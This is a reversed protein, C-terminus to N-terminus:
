PCTPNYEHAGMDVIVTTNCDGDIKRTQGCIDNDKYTCDDICDNSGADICPSSSSLSLGDDCTGWCNDAGGRWDDADSFLPDDSINGTGSWGGEICCYTVSASEDDNMEDQNDWMICNCITAEADYENYIAGGNNDGNNEYFTCNIIKAQTDDTNYIGGGAWDAYNEFFVCNTIEAAGEYNYIGGGYDAECSKFVCRDVKPSCDDIYVGGGCDTTDSNGGIVCDQILANASCYIMKGNGDVDGDVLTVSDITAAATVNLCRVEGDGDIITENNCRDRQSVQTETGAFGGYIRVTYPVDIQSSLTYTGEKIWVENCDEAENVGKQITKFANAWSKGDKADDGNVGDVYYVEDCAATVLSSLVLFGVIMGMLMKRTEM